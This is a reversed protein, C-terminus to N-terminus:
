SNIKYGRGYDDNTGVLNRSFPLIFFPPFLSSLKFFAVFEMEYVRVFGGDISKLDGIEILYRGRGDGIAAARCRKIEGNRWGSARASM